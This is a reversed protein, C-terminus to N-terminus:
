DCQALYYYYDILAEVPYNGNLQLVGVFIKPRMKGSLILMAKEVPATIYHHTPINGVNFNFNLVCALPPLPNLPTMLSMYSFHYHWM